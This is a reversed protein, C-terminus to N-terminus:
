RDDKDDMYKQRNVRRCGYESIDWIWGRRLGVRGTLEPGCRVRVGESATPSDPLPDGAELLTRLEARELLFQRDGAVEPTPPAGGSEYQRYLSVGSTVALYVSVAVIALIASLAAVVQKRSVGLVAAARDLPGGIIAEEESAM